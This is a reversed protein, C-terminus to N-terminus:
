NITKFRPAAAATLYRDYVEEVVRHPSYNDDRVMKKYLRAVVCFLLFGTLCATIKISFLILSSWSRGRTKDFIYYGIISSVANSLILLPGVFSVILGRMNYPSQACVFEFVSTILAQSLLGYTVNYLVNIIWGTAIEESHSLYHALKIVFCIFIVFTMMLSMTGIRELSSPLKNRVLPYLAFEYAVGLNIIHLSILLM